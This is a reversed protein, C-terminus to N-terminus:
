KFAEEKGVGIIRQGEILIIGKEIPPGGTGDIVLGGKVLTKGKGDQKSM